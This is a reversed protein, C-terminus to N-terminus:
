STWAVIRTTMTRLLAVLPLRRRRRRNKSGACPKNQRAVRRACGDESKGGRNQLNSRLPGISRPVKSARTQLKGSITLSHKKGEYIWTEVLVSDKATLEFSIALKSDSAGEKEWVGELLKMQNTPDKFFEGDDSKM